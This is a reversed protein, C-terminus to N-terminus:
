FYAHAIESIANSDMGGGQEGVKFLASWGEHRVTKVFCDLMGTYVVVSGGNEAAHLGKVGQWGSV